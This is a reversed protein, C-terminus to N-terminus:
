VDWTTLRIEEMLLVKKNENSCIDETAPSLWSLKQAPLHIALLLSKKMLLTEM